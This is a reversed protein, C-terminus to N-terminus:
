FINRANVFQKKDLPHKNETPKNGGEQLSNAGVEQRVHM